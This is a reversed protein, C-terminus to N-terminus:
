DGEFIVPALQWDKKQLIGLDRLHSAEYGRERALSALEVSLCEDILLRTRSL